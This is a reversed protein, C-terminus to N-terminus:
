IMVDYLLKGELFDPREIMETILYKQDLSELRARLEKYFGARRFYGYLLCAIGAVALVIVLFSQASSNVGLTGLMM